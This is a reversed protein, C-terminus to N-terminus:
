EGMVQVIISRPARATQFDLVMIEQYTGMLLDGDLVPITASANLLATRVHSAGNQDVGRRHHAYNGGMPVLQDLVDELDVMIGAEHEILMVAGTTHLFYM